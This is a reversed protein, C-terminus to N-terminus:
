RPSFYGFVRRPTAESEATRRLYQNRRSGCVRVTFSNVTDSAVQPTGFTDRFVGHPYHFYFNYNEWQPPLRTIACGCQAVKGNRGFTPSLHLFREGEQASAGAPAVIGRRHRKGLPTNRRPKRAPSCVRTPLRCYAIRTRVFRDLPVSATEKPVKRIRYSFYM